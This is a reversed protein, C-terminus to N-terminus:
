VVEGHSVFRDGTRECRGGSTLLGRRALSNLSTELAHKSFDADFGSFSVRRAFDPRRGRKIQILGLFRAACAEHGLDAVPQLGHVVRLFGFPMPMQGLFIARHSVARWKICQSNLIEPKGFDIVRQCLM